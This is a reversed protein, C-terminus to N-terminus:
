TPAQGADRPEELLGLFHDLIVFHDECMKDELKPLDAIALWRATLADDSAAIDPLPLAGLDYYFAHTLIRGRVSREPHDFLAQGRLLSQALERDLHLGTEENLERLAADAVRERQDLFGGPLAWCGKAPHGGRQIMLVKDGCRVLADVTVFVPPYPASAWARRYDLVYRYEALLGLFASSSAFAALFAAVVEPVQERLGSVDGQAAFWQRRVDSGNIGAINPAHLLGWEPFDRLYTSTDDKLHGFLGVKDAGTVAGVARRVAAAWRPANYYDRVTVCRLRAADEGLADRIMQEREAATFPNRVSRAAPASGLVLVVQSAQRLALRLMTLHSNHLPQFRGIYVLYDYNPSPM